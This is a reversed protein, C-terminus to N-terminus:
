KKGEENTEIFVRYNYGAAALAINTAYMSIKLLVHLALFVCMAFVVVFPSFIFKIM